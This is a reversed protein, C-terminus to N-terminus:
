TRLLKNDSDYVVVRNDTGAGLSDIIINGSASINGDVIVSGDAGSTGDGDGPILKINGGDKSAEPHYGDAAQLTLDAGDGVTNINSTSITRSNNNTGFNFSISITLWM